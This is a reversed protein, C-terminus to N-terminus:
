KVWAGGALGRITGSAQVQSKKEFNTKKSKVDFGWVQM